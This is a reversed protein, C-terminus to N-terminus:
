NFLKNKIKTFFNQFTIPEKELSVSVEQVHLLRGNEPLGPLTIIFQVSNDSYYLEPVEVTATATHWQGNIEPRKYEAIIYDYGDLSEVDNIDPILGFTTDFFQDQSFIFYGSGQLYVDNKPSVIKTMGTLDTAEYESHLGTLALEQAGVALTQLGDNHSTRASISPADSFLTTPTIIKDGLIDQYEANDTLYISDHFMLLHQYSSIGKIFVDDNTEIAIRCTGHNEMALAVRLVQENHVRGSAFTEGDDAVIYSAIENGRFDFVHVQISDEGEHRNIDQFSFTIDLQEDIGVYTFIEHSGRLSKTITLPVSQARYGPMVESKLVPYNYQLIENDAPRDNLFEDITLYNRKGRQLLILDGEQISKWDSTGVSNIVDEITPSYHAMTEFAYQGDSQLVGLNLVPQADPNQYTISITAKPFPRPVNLTFYLPSTTILQTVAQGGSEDESSFYRVPEKSAFNSISKSGHEATYQLELMGGPAYNQVIIWGILVMPLLWIATRWNWINKFVKKIRELEM